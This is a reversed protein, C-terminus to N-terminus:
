LFSHVELDEHELIWTRIQPLISAITNTSRNLLEFNFDTLGSMLSTTHAHHEERLHNQSSCIEALLREETEIHHIMCHFLNSLLEHATESALPLLKSKEFRELLDRLQSHQHGIEQKQLLTRM